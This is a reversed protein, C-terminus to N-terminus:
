PRPAPKPAASCGPPMAVAPAGPKAAAAAACEPKVVNVPQPAPVEGRALAELEAIVRAKEEPSLTSSSGASEKPLLSLSDVNTNRQPAAATGTATTGEQVLVAPKVDIPSAATPATNVATTGVTRPAFDGALLSCGAAALCTSAVLIARFVRPVQFAVPM